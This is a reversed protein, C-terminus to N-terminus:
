EYLEYSFTGTEFDLVQHFLNERGLSAVIPNDLAPIGEDNEYRWRALSGYLYHTAGELKEYTTPVTDTIIQAHPLFFRLRQEGPAIVMPTTEWYAEYGWLQEAVLAVGPNHLRTRAFDDPYQDTWLWNTTAAIDTIPIKLAPIALLILLIAWALKYGSHWMKIKHAPIWHALIVAIPLIMM